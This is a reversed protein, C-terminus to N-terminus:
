SGQQGTTTNAAEQGNGTTGTLEIPETTEAVAGSVRAAEEDRGRRRPKRQRQSRKLRRRLKSLWRLLIFEAVLLIMLVMPFSCVAIGYGLIKAGLAVNKLMGLVFSVLITIALITIGFWMYVFLVRRVSKYVSGMRLELDVLIHDTVIKQFNLFVLLPFVLAGLLVVVGFFDYLLPGLDKFRTQMSLVGASLSLPLFTTALITLRQVSNTQRMERRMGLFKIDHELSTSLRSLCGRVQQCLGHIELQLQTFKAQGPAMPITSPGSLTHQIAAAEKTFEVLYEIAELMREGANKLDRILCSTKTVEKLHGQKFESRRPDFLPQKNNMYSEEYAVLFEAYLILNAHYYQLSSLVKWNSTSEFVQYVHDLERLQKAFSATAQFSFRALKVAAEKKNMRDELTGLLSTRDPLALKDPVLTRCQILVILWKLMMEM